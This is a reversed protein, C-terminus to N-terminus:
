KLLIEEVIWQEYRRYLEKDKENNFVYSWTGNGPWVQSPSIWGGPTNHMCYFTNDLRMLPFARSSGPALCDMNEFDFIWGNFEIM